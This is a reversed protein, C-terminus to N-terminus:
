GSMSKIILAGIRGGKTTRARARAIQKRARISTKYRRVM